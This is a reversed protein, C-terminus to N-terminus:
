WRKVPNCTGDTLRVTIAGKCATPLGTGYSTFDNIPGWGDGVPKAGTISDALTPNYASQDPAYLGFPVIQSNMM